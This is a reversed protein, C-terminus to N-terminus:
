AATRQWEDPFRIVLGFKQAAFPILWDIFFTCQEKTMSSTHPMVPVDRGTFANRKWGWCEGMLVLKTAEISDGM